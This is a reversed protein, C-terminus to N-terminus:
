VAAEPSLACGASQLHADQTQLGQMGGAAFVSAGFGAESRAGSQVHTSHTHLGHATETGADIAGATAGVADDAGAPVDEFRAGSQWHVSQLHLGQVPPVLLGDLDEGFSVSPFPSTFNEGLVDPHVHVSQLHVMQGPLSPAEPAPLAASLLGTADLGDTPM